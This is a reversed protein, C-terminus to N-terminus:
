IKFCNYNWFVIKYIILFYRLYKEYKDSIVSMMVVYDYLENLISEFGNLVEYIM